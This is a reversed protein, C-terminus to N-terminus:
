EERTKERKWVWERKERWQKKTKENIERKRCKNREEPM